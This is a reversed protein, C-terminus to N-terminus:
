MAWGESTWLILPVQEDCTGTNLITLLGLCVALAASISNLHLAEASAMKVTETLLHRSTSHAWSVHRSRWAATSMLWLPAREVSSSCTRMFSNYSLRGWSLSMCLDGVEEAYSCSGWDRQDIINKLNQRKKTIQKLKSKHDRDLGKQDIKMKGIQYKEARWKKDNTEKPAWKANCKKHRRHNQM